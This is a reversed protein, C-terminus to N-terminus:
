HNFETRHGEYKYTPSQYIKYSVPVSSQMGNGTDLARNSTKIVDLFSLFKLCTCKKM